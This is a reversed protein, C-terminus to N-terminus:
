KAGIVCTAVDTRQVKSQSLLCHHYQPWSSVVRYTALAPVVSCHAVLPPHDHHHSNNNNNNNVQAVMLVKSYLKDTIYSKKRNELDDTNM